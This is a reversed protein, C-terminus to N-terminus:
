HKKGGPQPTSAALLDTLSKQLFPIAERPFTVPFHFSGELILDLIPQGAPGIATQSGTIHMVQMTAQSGQPPTMPGLQPGLAILTALIGGIIGPHLVVEYVKGGECNLTLMVDKTTPNLNIALTGVARPLREAM